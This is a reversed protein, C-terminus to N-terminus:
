PKYESLFGLRGLNVGLIPIGTDGVRKSASLFTGDGGVSLLVDTHERLDDRTEIHYLECSAKLLEAELSLLREDTKLQEKKVYVAIRM